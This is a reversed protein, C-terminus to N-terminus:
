AYTMRIGSGTLKLSFFILQTSKYAVNESASSKKKMKLKIFILEKYLILMGCVKEMCVKVNWHQQKVYFHISKKIGKLTKRDKIFLIHIVYFTLDVHVHFHYKRCYRLMDWPM